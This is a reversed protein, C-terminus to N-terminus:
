RSRLRRFREARGASDLALAADWAKPYPGRRAREVLVQADAFDRGWLAVWTDYLWLFLVEHEDEGPRAVGVQLRHGLEHVLTARKTDSPYSARLRMPDDRFGSNSVGEFVVAIISTDAFSDSQARFAVRVPSPTTPRGSLTPHTAKACAMSLLALFLWSANLCDVIFKFLIRENSATTDGVTRDGDNKGRRPMLESHVSASSRAGLVLTACDLASREARAVTSVKKAITVRSFHSEAAAISSRARNSGYKLPTTRLIRLAIGGRGILTSSSIAFSEVM